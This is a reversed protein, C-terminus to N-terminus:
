PNIVTTRRETNLVQVPRVRCQSLNLFGAVGATFRSATLVQVPRVRCQSL